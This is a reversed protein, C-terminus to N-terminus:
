EIPKNKYATAWLNLNESRVEVPHFGVQQMKQALSEQTFGTRHAMYYKGKALDTGLGYLIDIAAIPGAPSLYIPEELNGQAVYEAVKQIDPLTILVFGGPKLVRYFEALAIPVEHPYIHEINHSSWIADVSQSPVPTMDTISSIIDPKVNPDIDLRVEQWEDTKFTEHLGSRSYPGCGVHLVKKKATSLLPTKADTILKDEVVQRYFQELAKVCTVDEYLNAHRDSMQQSLTRRWEADLGLKVAIDIYEAEDQAITDTLGLINLMGCSQRGRMLEGPCTVIPLNCAIAELTTIGGSWSFTDLFIDALLNLQWYSIVTQRPLIICYDENKLGYKAFAQKLRQQLKETILPSQHAVFVFQSQPVKQAIEPYIYDYQPLYKSLSQCSLYVVADDRLQFDARKKTQTPIIPKTCSMGLKPLRILQESYHEAANEPEMAESSLFYDITPMGSTVPHLWSACQIPALRLAAMQIMQPHMGIEVFVLLHLKDSVIQQCVGELDNGIQHFVDSYVLFKETLADQEPNIHYCYVDFQQRDCNRLWGLLLKGVGNGRMGHSVYGIRIKETPNLTPMPRPLVWHPYNAAMIRHVLEGYQKQLELDNSGQYQLLFNQYCSIGRFSNKKMDATDLSIEQSFNQLGQTFRQRYFKIEEPYEYIVPLLLEAERKLQLANPLLQSAKSAVAIAEQTRGAKQLTLIWSFYLNEDQPYLSISDEYVKLAEDYQNTLQYCDALAIYFDRDGTQIELFKQFYSIAIEHKNQRYFAYGLYSSAQAQDNKAEFAIGLNNLIDPYRPQLRLATEYAAIALDIQQQLMLINGLNLYGGFHEPNAAIAQRYVSEAQEIEGAQALINGLNNYAQINQPDLKIAEQYARIAQVRDGVAELVVGLNYHRITKLPDIEISKILLLLADQYQEKMYYLTGLHLWADANEPEWRLVEQYKKEAQKLNENSFSLFSEENETNVLKGKNIPTIAGSCHLEVAENHLTDILKKREAEQLKNLSAIVEQNRKAGFTEGDERHKRTGDWVFLQVGNWIKYNDSGDAKDLLLQCQPHAALFDYNAQQPASWNSNSVLIIAREALFPRVLLLGMLHSRYDHSGDYFYFGIKDETELGSLDSFFEEFEQNCFFVQESLNFNSLNETLKDFSDEFTDFESFNDVAYAMQEPHELLAAILSAGQFCGVECYVENPELCEVAFNVLQMVNATTMGTVQNLIKQFQDSKPFALGQEWNEYLSPLQEFFRQNDM